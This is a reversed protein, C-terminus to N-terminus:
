KLFEIRLMLSIIVGTLIAARSAYLLAFLDKEKWPNHLATLSSVLIITWVSFSETNTSAVWLGTITPLYAVILIINIAVYAMNAKQSIRWYILVVIVAMVCLMDISVFKFSTHNGFILLTITILWTAFVDVTNAINTIFDRKSDTSLYTWIGLGVALSFLLWTILVPHIEGIIILYCYRIAAIAMLFSVIFATFKKM